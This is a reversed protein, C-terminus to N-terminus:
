VGRCLANNCRIASYQLVFDEVASYQATCYYVASCQMASCLRESYQEIGNEVAMQQGRIIPRHVVSCAANLKGTCDVRSCYMMSCLASSHIVTYKLAQYQLDNCNLATNHLSTCHLVTYHLTTCHIATYHLTTCHIATYYLTTCHLETYQICLILTHSHVMLLSSSPDTGPLLSICEVKSRMRTQLRCDVTTTKRGCQWDVVSDTQWVAGKVNPKGSEKECKKLLCMCSINFHDLEGSVM